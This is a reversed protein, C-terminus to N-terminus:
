FWRRRDRLITMAANRGAAGMIGGGPHTSAGTLYLGKVPGRYTSMTLAPRLMFMQDISMELHMVNGQLLGLERELYLPTEVLKDIVASKVNPAYRGLTDLMREGEREAIEDWNEGSALEYPYYQGWIFLTHKGPPALSPDVASFTMGILAPETSPRKGLFDGYARDLYDLTPCIFQMAIHEEGIQGRPTGTATYDPLEDMACRIIMGFGNGIRSNEIMRRKPAPVDAGELLKLTTHIHAGSAILKGTYRESQGTQPDVVEVGVARGSETLIKQAPRSTLITGGHAEIMKRLAQTLMGSGGKPRKLGSVHYMPHWLAFPASLPETPPPGSQAAMWGIVAPLEEGDFSQRLLQGYGRFIDTLREWNGAGLGSRFGLNRVLSGMTPPNTFTEVTAHALPTWTKIFQRYNDADQENIQAISECTKDLDKYMTISRGDPFPTWFLPDVDLYELGFETLKLDSIIPTHHILIHASGGLDFKFGPIIEETVVAGGVKHRREVVLVKLGAQALYGACILGNHGAGIIIADFDM